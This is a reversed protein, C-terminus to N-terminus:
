VQYLGFDGNKQDCLWFNIRFTYLLISFQLSQPFIFFKNKKLWRVQVIFSEVIYNNAGVLLGPHCRPRHSGNAALVPLSKGGHPSCSSAGFHLRAPKPKSKAGHPDMPVQFIFFYPTLGHIAWCDLGNLYTFGQDSEEEGSCIVGGGSREM